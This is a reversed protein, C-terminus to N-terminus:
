GRPRYRDYIARLNQGLYREIGYGPEDAYPLNEIFSQQIVAKADDDSTPYEEELFEVVDRWGSTADPRDRTEEFDAVVWRTVDGFYVHPLLIDNDAVHEDYSQRLGPVRAVLREVLRVESSSVFQAPDYNAPDFGMEGMSM